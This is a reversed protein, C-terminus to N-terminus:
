QGQVNCEYKGEELLQQELDNRDQERPIIVYRFYCKNNKLNKKICLNKENDSLHENYRTNLNDTKGVYIRTYKGNEGDNRLIKYVGGLTPVKASNMEVYRVDDSWSIKSTDM